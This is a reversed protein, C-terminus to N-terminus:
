RGVLHRLRKQDLRLGYALGDKQGKFAAQDLDSMLAATEGEVALSRAMAYEDLRIAECVSRDGVALPDFEDLVSAVPIWQQPKGLSPSYQTVLSPRHGEIPLLTVTHVPRHGKAAGLGEVKVCRDGMHAIELSVGIGAPRM